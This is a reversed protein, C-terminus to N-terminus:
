EGNEGLGDAIKELSDIEEAWYHYTNYNPFLLPFSPDSWRNAIWAAYNIIRLGRLPTFLEIQSHDFERLEEYGALIEDFEDDFTDDDGTLVMWFDQAEPGAGFDDFDIFMFDDSFQLLNGKHCDGHIRVFRKPHLHDTLFNEIESAAALYRPWLSPEVWKELVDLSEECRMPMKWNPRYKAKKQAGVNHIRALTRGVRQLEGKLFEQPMRGVVRPFMSVFMGHVERITKKDPFNLPAVALVGESKLDHLFEHEELICQKSWRGPRYFKIIVRDPSKDTKELAVDFVRNEYSNLQWYQGTPMFGAQEVTKLVLNPDLDYFSVEKM